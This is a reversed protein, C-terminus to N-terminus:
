EDCRLPTPVGSSRWWRERTGVYRCAPTRSPSGPCRRYQLLDGHRVRTAVVGGCVGFELWVSFLGCYRVEDLCPDGGHGPGEEDKESEEEAQAVPVSAVRVEGRQPCPPVGWELGEDLIGVLGDDEERDEDEDGRGDAEEVVGGEELQLEDLDQGEELDGDGGGGCVGVEVDEAAAAGDGGREEHVVGEDGGEAGGDIADRPAAPRVEGAEGVGADVIRLEVLVVDLGRRQVNGRGDGCEDGDQPQIPGQCSEKPRQQPPVQM